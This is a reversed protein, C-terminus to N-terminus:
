PKFNPVTESLAKFDPLKHNIITYTGPSAGNGKTPDVNEPDCELTKDMSVSGCIGDKTKERAFYHIDSSLSYGVLVHFTDKGIRNPPKKGNVDVLLWFGDKNTEVSIIKGDILLYRSRNLSSRFDYDSKETGYYNLTKLPLWYVDSEGVNLQEVVNMYKSIQSFDAPTHFLVNQFGLCRQVNFPCGISDKWSHVASELKSNFDYLDPVINYEQKKNLVPITFMFIVGVIIMTILVDALSFGNKMNVRDVM